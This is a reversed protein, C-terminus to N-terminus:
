RQIAAVAAAPSMELVPGHGPLVLSAEVASLSNLAEYAGPLDHHFIPDLMQPGCHASFGHGAILADGSVLASAGPLHFATHGPSHGSSHIARPSGPLGQLAEDSFAAAAPVSNSKTGGARFVHWTWSLVRPRWARRLIKAPAVQFKETGQMAGVEPAAILVPVGAEAFLPAAGTHDIHSHTLLMASAKEPKLGLSRIGLAVSRTDGPYGGDILTFDKGDRLIVWNSAPGTVFFTNDSVEKPRPFFPSSM